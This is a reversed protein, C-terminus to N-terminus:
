AILVPRTVHPLIFLVIFAVSFPLSIAKAETSERCKSGSIDMWLIRQSLHGLSPLHVLGLRLGRTRSWVADM